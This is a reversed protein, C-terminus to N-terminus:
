KATNAVETRGKSVPRSSANDMNGLESGTGSQGRKRGSLLHFHHPKGDDSTNANSSTSEGFRSLFSRKKPKAPDDNLGVDEFASDEAPITQPKDFTSGNMIPRPLRVQRSDLSTRSNYSDSHIIPSRGTVDQGCTLVVKIYHLVLVYLRDETLTSLNVRFLSPSM